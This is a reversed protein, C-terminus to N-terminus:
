ATATDPSKAMRLPLIFMLLFGINLVANFWAGSAISGASDVVFWSWIGYTIIKGGTQPDSAYVLTTVQWITVGLGVLVGGGIAALLQDTKDGFRQQGDFPLHVLDVFWSLLGFSQTLLALLAGLGMAISFGCAFKLSKIVRDQTM